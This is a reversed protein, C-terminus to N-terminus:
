IGQKALEKVRLQSQRRPLREVAPPFRGCPQDAAGWNSELNPNWHALLPVDTLDDRRFAILDVEDQDILSRIETQSADALFEDADLAMIWDPRSATAAEWQIQRVVRETPFEAAPLSILTHPRGHLIKRCLALREDGSTNAVVVFHDAYAIAQQLAREVCDATEDRVLLALTIRNQRTKRVFPVPVAGAPEPELRLSAVQWGAADPAMRAKFSIVDEYPTEGERGRQRFSGEVAVTGDARLGPYAWLLHAQSVAEQATAQQDAQVAQQAVQSRLPERFGAFADPDRAVLYHSTGWRELTAQCAKLAAIEATRRECGQWFEAEKNLDAERYLHLAPYHTDVYLNLGMAKARICFHRDEGWFSVNTIEKFSVGAELARRSILTLAGLGGVGYVGPCRLKTLFHEQRREAEARDLPEGSRRPFLTYQDSLWVQPMEEAGPDWQTWFIESIIDVKASILQRLTEPHLLLDSDVLLLGDYDLQRALRIIQDKYRAVRWILRPNWLHTQETREYAEQHTEGEYLTVHGAPRFERLLRTSAEDENDDFFAYDVQLGESRLNSLSRLFKELVTASQRIPSGILIRQM